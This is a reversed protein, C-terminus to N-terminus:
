VRREAIRRHYYQDAADLITGTCYHSEWVWQVLHIVDERILVMSQRGCTITLLMIGFSYVDLETDARGTVMCELDMYGVTSALVMIHLGHSHDVLRTLGFDGLKANFSADLMVNNPKIDRHVVCQEWEQHLYLISSAIRLVIEHRRSWPM